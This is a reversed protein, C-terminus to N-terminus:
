ALQPAPTVIEAHHGEEETVGEMVGETVSEVVGEDAAAPRWCTRPNTPTREERVLAAAETKDLSQSCAAREDGTREEAAGEEAAADGVEEAAGEAAADAALADPASTTSPWGACTEFADYALHPLVHLHWVDWPLLAGLSAADRTGLLLVAAVHLFRPPFALPSHEAWVPGSLVLPIPDGAESPQRRPPVLQAFSVSMLTEFQFRMTTGGTTTGGPAEPSAEESPRDSTPQNTAGKEVDPLRTVKLLRQENESNEFPAVAVGPSPPALRRQPTSM